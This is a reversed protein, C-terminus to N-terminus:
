RYVYHSGASDTRIICMIESVVYEAAELAGVKEESKRRSILRDHFRCM